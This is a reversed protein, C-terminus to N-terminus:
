AGSKGWYRMRADLLLPSNTIIFGRDTWFKVPEEIWRRGEFEEVMIGGAFPARSGVLEESEGDVIRSLLVKATGYLQGDSERLTM